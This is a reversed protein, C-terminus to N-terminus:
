NENIYYIPVKNALATAHERRAGPSRQWGPAMHIATILGSLILKDWFEQLRQEREEKDLGFLGLQGYKEPTFIFPATFLLVGRGLSHMLRSRTAILNELNRVINEEGDCSIPGAVYQAEYGDERLQTLTQVTQEFVQDLTQAPALDEELLLRMYGSAPALAM